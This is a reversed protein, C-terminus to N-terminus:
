QTRKAVGCFPIKDSMYEQGPPHVELQRAAEGAWKDADDGDYFESRTKMHPM